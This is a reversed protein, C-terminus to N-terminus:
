AFVFIYQTRIPHDYACSVRTQKQSGCDVDSSFRLNQVGVASVHKSDINGEAFEQIRPGKLGGVHCLIGSFVMAVPGACLLSLMNMLMVSRVAIVMSVYFVPLMVNIITLELQAHVFGMNPHVCARWFLLLQGFIFVFKLCKFMLVLSEDARRGGSALRPKVMYMLPLLWLMWLLLLSLGCLEWYESLYSLPTVQYNFHRLFWECIWITTFVFLAVLLAAATNTVKPNVGLMGFILVFM